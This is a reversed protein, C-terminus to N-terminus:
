FSNKDYRKNKIFAKILRPVYLIRNKLRNIKAKHIMGLREFTKEVSKCDEYQAKFVLQEQSRKSPHRLQDNGKIAETVMREQYEFLNSCSGFYEVGKSTNLLALSIKGKYGDLADKSINWFDGITIDSVRENRAFQCVYCVPRFMIGRMFSMFYPDEYQSRKYIVKKNKDYVTLYFDNLGRFTINDVNSYDGVQAEIHEKLYLFPPTGHCILDITVLNEYDKRLFGLLGAVHCPTGIFLCKRGEKLKEKIQKYILLPDSYVYKSGKLLELREPSDVMVYHPYGGMSTAGFVCGGQSVMYRSFTTAAGGSACTKRDHLSKAYLAIAKEPYRFQPQTKEPCVAQCLGCEKCKDQIIAPQIAGIANVKIEIADFPCINKCAMCSDCQEVSCLNM